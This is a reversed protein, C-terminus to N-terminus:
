VDCLLKGPVINRTRHHDCKPAVGAPYLCANCLLEWYNRMSWIIEDRGRQLTGNNGWAPLQLPEMIDGRVIRLRVGVVQEIVSPRRKILWTLYFNISSTTDTVLGRKGHAFTKAYDDRNPTPTSWNKFPHLYLSSSPHKIHLFALILKTVIYCCIIM